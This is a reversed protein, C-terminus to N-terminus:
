GTGVTLKVALGLLTAFLPLLLRVQDAVLAVAQVAEPPHDPGFAVLPDWDVPASVALEVYVKDQVPAPPLATCDAVTETLCVAGVMLKLLLGLVIAFPPLEVTVQDAVLAVDHVALPPQDPVFPVEPECDVPASVALVM